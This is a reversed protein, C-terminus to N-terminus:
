SGYVNTRVNPTKLQTELYWYAMRLADKEHQSSGRPAKADGWWSNKWQAPDIEVVGPILARVSTIVSTLKEGLPGRIIVPTEALVHDPKYRSLLNVFAEADQYPIQGIGLTSTHEDVCAWGTTLGLDLTLLRTM